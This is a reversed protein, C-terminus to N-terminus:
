GERGVGGEGTSEKTCEDGVFDENGLGTREREDNGMRLRKLTLRGIELTNTTALLINNNHTCAKLKTDHM